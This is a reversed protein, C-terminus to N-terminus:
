QFYNMQKNLVHEGDNQNLKRRVTRNFEAM